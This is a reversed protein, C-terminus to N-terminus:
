APTVNQRVFIAVIVATLALIAATQDESLALGFSVGLVLIAQVLGGVLAPEATIRDWIRQLM